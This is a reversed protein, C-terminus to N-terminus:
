IFSSPIKLFFFQIVLDSSQATRGQINISPIKKEIHENRYSTRRSFVSSTCTMLYENFFNKLDINRTDSIVDHWLM